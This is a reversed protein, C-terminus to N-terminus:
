NVKVAPSLSFHALSPPQFTCSLVIIWLLTSIAFDLSFNNLDVIMFSFVYATASLVFCASSMVVAMFKRASVQPGVIPALAYGAGFLVVLFPGLMLSMELVSLPASLGVILHPLVFFIAVPFSYARFM